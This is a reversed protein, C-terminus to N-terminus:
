GHGTTSPLPSPLPLSTLDNATSSNPHPPPPSAGDCVSDFKSIWNEVEAELKVKRKRLQAEMQAVSLFLRSNYSGPSCGMSVLRVEKNEAKMEAYQKELALIQADIDEKRASFGKEELM